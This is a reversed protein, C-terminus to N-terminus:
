EEVKIILYRIVDESIRLRSELDAPAGAEAEFTIFVYIGENIKDIEYALRRKGWEDVKVINANFRALLEKVKDMAENFGEEELSPKFVLALEYKNM